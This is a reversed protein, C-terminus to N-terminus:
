SDFHHTGIQLEKQEFGNETTKIANESRLSWINEKKMRSKRKWAKLLAVQIYFMRTISDTIYTFNYTCHFDVTYRM